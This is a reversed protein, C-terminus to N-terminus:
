QNGLHLTAGLVMLGAFVLVLGIIQGAWMMRTMPIERTNPSITKFFLIGGVILCIVAVAVKV